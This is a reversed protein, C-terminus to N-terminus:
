KYRQIVHVSLGETKRPPLFRLLPAESGYLFLMLVVPKTSELAVLAIFAREKTSLETEVSVGTEEVM